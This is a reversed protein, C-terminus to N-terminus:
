KKYTLDDKEHIKQTDDPFPFMAEYVCLLKEDIKDSFMKEANKVEGDQLLQMLKDLISQPVPFAFHLRCLNDTKQYCVVRLDELPRGDITKYVPCEGITWLVDGKVEKLPIVKPRPLEFTMSMDDRLPFVIRKTNIKFEM